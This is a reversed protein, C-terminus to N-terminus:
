EDDSRRTIVNTGNKLVLNDAYIAEKQGELEHQTNLFTQLQKLHTERVRQLEEIQRKAAKMEEEFSQM